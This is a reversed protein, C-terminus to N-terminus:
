TPMGSQVSATWPGDVFYVEGAGSMDGIGPWQPMTVGVAALAEPGTSRFQFHTRSPITLAVGARVDVVEGDDDSGEPKRWMEGRGATFYWVEELTRHAVAVSTENLALSFHTMSGADCRVLIRVDSGDPAIADSEVPLHATEM